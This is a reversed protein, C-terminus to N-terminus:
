RPQFNLDFTHARNTGAADHSDQEHLRVPGSNFGIFTCGALLLWAIVLVASGVALLFWGGRLQSPEPM